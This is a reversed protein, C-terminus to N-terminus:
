KYLPKIQFLCYFSLTAGIILGGLNVALLAQLVGVLSSYYMLRWASLKRKFLGPLAV